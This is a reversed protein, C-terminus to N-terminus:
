EYDRIGIGVPFIPVGKDSRQQFRVTLMKGIYTKGNRFMRRRVEISGRPRCDFYIHSDNSTTRCRCQWIVAGSDSGTGEKYGVIEFEEDIFEKYKLLRKDRYEWLYPEDKERIIIGEYGEDVYKDHYKKLSLWDVEPLGIAPIFTLRDSNFKSHLILQINRIVMESKSPLDYIHYKLLQTDNKTKIWWRAEDWERKKCHFLVKKRWVKSKDRKVAQSIREFSWGHVYLEGDLIGNKFPMRIEIHKSLEHLITTYDKGKRSYLKVKGDKKVAICRVGNLKPQLLAQEPLTTINAKGSVVDPSTPSYATEALMPFYNTIKNIDSEHEVMGADVKKQWKAQAENVAQQHPTTENKKGVNKGVNIEKSHLLLKSDKYGSQWKIIVEDYLTEVWIEWVKVKGNKSKAYLRPFKKTIHTTM